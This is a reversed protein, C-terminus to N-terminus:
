KFGIPIRVRESPMRRGSDASDKGHQATRKAPQQTAAEHPGARLQLMFVTYGLGTCLMAPCFLTERFARTSPVSRVQRLRKTALIQRLLLKIWM